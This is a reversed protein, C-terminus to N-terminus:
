GYCFVLSYHYPRSYLGQWFAYARWRWLVTMIVPQYVSALSARESSTVAGNKIAWPDARRGSLGVWYGRLFREWM